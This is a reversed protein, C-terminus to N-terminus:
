WSASVVSTTTLSAEARIAREEKAKAIADQIKTVVYDPTIGFMLISFVFLLALLIIVSSPVEVASVMLGGVVGGVIGGGVFLEEGGTEWMELIDLGNSADYGAFM